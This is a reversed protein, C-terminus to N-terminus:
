FQCSLSPWFECTQSSFCCLLGAASIQSSRAPGLNPRVLPNPQVRRLAVRDLAEGPRHPNAGLSPQLANGVMGVAVVTM